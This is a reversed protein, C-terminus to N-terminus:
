IGSNNNGVGIEQMDVSQIIGNKNHLVFCKYSTAKSGGVSIGFSSLGLGGQKEYQYHRFYLAGQKGTSIPEAGLMKQAQQFSTKGEIIKGCAEYDFKNGSSGAGFLANAGTSGVTIFVALLSSFVTKQM